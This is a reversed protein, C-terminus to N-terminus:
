GKRFILVSTRKGRKILDLASDYGCPIVEIMKVSDIDQITKQTIATNDEDCVLLPIQRIGNGDDGGFALAFVSILMTPLLFTLMVARKDKLFSTLEKKLIKFM